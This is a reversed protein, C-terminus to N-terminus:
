RLPPPAGTVAEGASRAVALRTPPSLLVLACRQTPHEGSVRSSAASVADAALKLSPPAPDVIFTPNGHLEPSAFTPM